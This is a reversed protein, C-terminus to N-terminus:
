KSVNREIVEKLEKKDVPKAIYDDMGAKLFKEKDGTMAHATLAIIPISKYKEKSSRIQKSAEVGDLVPMQVDMLVCDFDETTLVSLVDQGNDVVQVYSGMKELLRKSSFQTTLDDDAILIRYGDLNAEYKDKQDEDRSYLHKKSIKFPLSIYVSTGQGEQSSISMNGGMLGVLRKVLSLGLGAGEYQRAYPSKSNSVQTFIDLVQELESESIGKGTDSVIFLMRYDSLISNALGYVQVEIQGQQTYKAANGVLNFLIQTLRISDGYLDEPTTEDLKISLRNNNEQCVQTFIDKISQIVETIKFQSEKLELKNAEIKSLDLIDSLLRNLRGTSKYAMDVYEAQEQNLETTQLLQLMGQIGNIPTRIEHSMNALFESKSTNAAEAQKKAQIIKKEFEKRQIIGWMGEILLTLQRIDAYDYDSEKNAVGILVVIRKGDFIPIHMHRKIQVHGEPFSLNHDQNIVLPERKRIAQGWFGTKIVPFKYSKNRVECEELAKKSWSHMTLVTEDESLFALYGVKSGTLKVGEELAFETLEEMPSSIMNGLNVLADLRTENLLAKEQAKKIETIDEGISQYAVIQGQDNLLARNTWRQWALKGDPKIVQHEHSKVPSNYTLSSLHEMVTKQDAKPLLNLFNTGILEESKKNFYQCYAQNVFTIEGSPLYRCIFIPTDEVVGRYRTESKRLINEANKLKTIDQFVSFTAKEEQFCIQNASILVSKIEGLKTKLEVEKEEIKGAQKIKKIFFERDQPEKWYESAKLDIAKENPVGFFRSACNNIYMVQGTQLNSIVIPFLANDMLYKYQRRSEELDELVKKHESIDRVMALLHPKNQYVFSSGKIEINFLSGDKRLDVSEAQFKGTENIQNKFDEFLYYYDPHVIEKGSLGILEDKEYGYMEVAEPNCDVIIGDTNFILIGDVSTNFINRFRKEREQLEVEDKKRKTIDFMAVLAGISRGKEDIM